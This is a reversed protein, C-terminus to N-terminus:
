ARHKSDRQGPGERAALGPGSASGPPPPALEGPSLRAPGAEGPGHVPSSRHGASVHSEGVANHEPHLLAVAPRPCRLAEADKGHGLLRPRDLWTTAEADGRVVAEGVAGPGIKPPAPRPRKSRGNGIGGVAPKRATILAGPHLLVHPLRGPPRGRRQTR